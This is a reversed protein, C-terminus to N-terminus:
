KKKWPKLFGLVRFWLGVPQLNSANDHQSPAPKSQNLERRFIDKDVRDRQIVARIKREHMPGADLVRNNEIWYHSRCAFKWNGISPYLSVGRLTKRFSWQASNFPTIVEEGCGCCCLHAAIAFEESIYLEGERLEEPLHEVFVPQVLQTKM